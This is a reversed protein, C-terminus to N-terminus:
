ARALTPSAGLIVTVACPITHGLHNPSSGNVPSVVLPTDLGETPEQGAKANNM